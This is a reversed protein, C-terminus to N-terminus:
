FFTEIEFWDEWSRRTLRHATCRMPLLEAIEPEVIEIMSEVAADIYTLSDLLLEPVFCTRDPGTPEIPGHLGDAAARLPVPSVADRDRWFAADAIRAESLYPVSFHCPLGVLQLAVFNATEAEVEKRAVRRDYEFWDRPMSTHGALMLHALEHVLVHLRLDVDTCAAVTIRGDRATGWIAPDPQEIVTIGTAEIRRVYRGFLEWADPPKRDYALYDGPPDEIHCSDYVALPETRSWGPQRILIPEADARVRYGDREWEEASGVDLALPCADWILLRDEAAYQRYWISRAAFDLWRAPDGATSSWALSRLLTPVRAAPDVAAARIAGPAPGPTSPAPLDIPRVLECVAM